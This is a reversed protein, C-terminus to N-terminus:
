RFNNEINKSFVKHYENKIFETKSKNKVCDRYTIYSLVYGRENFKDINIMKAFNSLAEECTKKKKNLYYLGLREYGAISNPYIDIARQYFKRGSEFDKYRSGIYDGMEVAAYSYIELIKTLTFNRSIALKRNNMKTVRYGAWIKEINILYDEKIQEMDSDNGIKHVLGYPIWNIKGYKKNEFQAISNSFLPKKKGYLNLAVLGADGPSIGKYKKLVNAYVKALYRDSGFIQGTKELFQAEIIVDKRIGRVLQANVTNFVTTDFVLLVTSNKPLSKLLDESYYDGLFVDHLDTYSYNKLFLFLPVLLFLAFLLYSLFKKTIRKAEISNLFGTLLNYVFLSGWSFIIVLFLASITYFREIIEFSFTDPVISTQNGYFYGTFFLGSMILGLLISLIILKKTILFNILGFVFLIFFLIPLEVVWYGIINTIPNFIYILRNLDFKGNWGYDMRLVLHLFNKLNIANNWNIAPNHIAALPIYIYPLLGIIFAILCRFIVSPSFFVKYNGAILLLFVSPLILIIIEHTSFSLGLVFFLLYLHKEKKRLYYIVSIYIVFLIFFYTLGFVEGVEAYLWFPYLFALTLASALAIIRNKVIQQTLLYMLVVSLSSFFTSVLGVKWAISQHLPLYSFLIALLMFLPFGPPHPVGKVAVANIFDAVDGGYVSPSLHHVYIGFVFVFLFLPILIFIKRSVGKILDIFVFDM